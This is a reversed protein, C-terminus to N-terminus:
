PDDPRKRKRAKQTDAPSFGRELSGYLAFDPTPRQAEGPSLGDHFGEFDIWTNWQSSYYRDKRALLMACSHHHESAIGYAPLYHQMALAMHRVETHTPIHKMTLNVPSFVKPAYTAGKIEIFDPMAREILKAYLEADHGLNLLTLRCVTRMKERKTRLIDLSAELRAFADKFLPRGVKILEAETPADVSCYLQTARQVKELQDPFQGNTVLFTSVRRAHLSDLLENIRPYIVPEGVLSLACHRVQEAATARESDLAPSPGIAVQRIFKRQHLRLAENVIFDPEDVEFDWKMTIPNSHNRWCFVCRNACALSPTMEMCQHSNIGYFTHKYCMGQKKMANKTWRCMKVSSHKGILQHGDTQLSMAQKETVMIKLEKTVGADGVGIQAESAFLRRSICTTRRRM